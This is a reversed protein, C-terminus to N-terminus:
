RQDPAVRGNTVAWNYIQAESIDKPLVCVGIEPNFVTGPACPTRHAVGNSCEYFSARDAPDLHYEDQDWPLVCTVQGGNVWNWTSRNNVDFVAM